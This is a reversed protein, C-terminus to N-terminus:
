KGSLDAAVRFGVNSGQGEPELADRCAARCEGADSLYCGGRIVRWKAAPPGTPDDKPSNAYYGTDYWDTCWEAVSGHMDYLGWPNPQKQGVGHVRFESNGKYWAHDGLRSPDDGFYWKTTTGARCAYEWAAETPL